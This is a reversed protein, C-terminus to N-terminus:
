VSKEAEHVLKQYCFGCNDPENFGSPETELVEITLPSPSLARATVTWEVKTLDERGDIVLPLVFPKPETVFEIQSTDVPGNAGQQKTLSCHPCGLATAMPKASSSQAACAPVCVVCTAFVLLSSAFWDHRGGV